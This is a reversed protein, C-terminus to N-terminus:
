GEALEQVSSGRDGTVYIWVDMRVYICVDVSINRSPRRHRLEPHLGSTDDLNVTEGTLLRGIRM